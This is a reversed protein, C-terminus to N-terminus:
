SPKKKDKPDDNNEPTKSLKQFESFDSRVVKPRPQFNEDVDEWDLPGEFFNKEGVKRGEKALEKEAISRLSDRDLKDPSLMDEPLNEGYLAKIEEPTLESAKTRSTKENQRFRHFKVLFYILGFLIFGVVVLITIQSLRSIYLIQEVRAPDPKPQTDLVRPSISTFILPLSIQILNGPKVRNRRQYQSMMMFIM